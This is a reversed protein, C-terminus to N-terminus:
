ELPDDLHVLAHAGVARDLPLGIERGDTAFELGREGVADVRDRDYEHMRVAIGVMLLLDGREGAVDAERLDRDAM